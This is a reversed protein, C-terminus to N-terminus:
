PFKLEIDKDISGGGRQSSSEPISVKDAYVKLLLSKQMDGIAKGQLGLGVLDNGNVALENVTKPYKGQSLELAATKLEDPIIQSNLSEPSFLYMNHVISRAMIPNSVDANFATELAKKIEWVSCNYFDLDNSNRTELTEINLRKKAIAALLEDLKNEM